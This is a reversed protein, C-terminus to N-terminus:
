STPSCAGIGPFGSYSSPPLPACEQNELCGGEGPELTGADGDPEVICLYRCVDLNYCIQSEGCDNRYDCPEGEEVQSGSPPDCATIGKKGDAIHCDYGEPHCDDEPPCNDAFLTCSVSFSCMMAFYDGITVHMDCTGGGCPENNSPCCVPTCHCDVCEMGDACESDADCDAGMDKLGSPPRCESTVESGWGRIECVEGDPCNQQLLDCDGEPIDTYVSSGPCDVGTSGGGGSPSGTATMGGQGADSTTSAGSGAQGDDDNNEEETTCAAFGILVGAAALM